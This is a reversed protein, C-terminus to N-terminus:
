RRAALRVQRSGAQTAPPVRVATVLDALARGVCDITAQPASGGARWTIGSEDVMLEYDVTGVGGLCAQAEESDRLQRELNGLFDEGSGARGQSVLLYAPRERGDPDTAVQDAVALVGPDSRLTTQWENLLGPGEVRCARGRCDLDFAGAGPWLRRLAPALRQRAAESAPGSFGDRLSRYRSRAEITRELALAQAPDAVEPPTMSTIPPPERAPDNPSPQAVAALSAPRAPETLRYVLWLAAGVLVVVAAVFALARLAKL